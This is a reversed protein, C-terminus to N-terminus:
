RPIADRSMKAAILASSGIPNRRHKLGLALATAVVGFGFLTLSSPEPVPVVGLGWPSFSTIGGITITHNVQDVVGSMAVWAGDEFHYIALKSEDTAPSLLAPDYSFSVTAGAGDSFAGTFDLSWFQFTDGPVVFDIAELADIGSGIVDSLSTAAYSATFSGPQELGPLDVVLTNNSGTLLAISQPQSDHVQYNESIQSGDGDYLYSLSLHGGGSFGPAPDPFVTFVSPIFQSDLSGITLKGEITGLGTFEDLIASDSKSYLLVARLDLDFVRTEGAGFLGGVIAPTATSVGFANKFVISPAGRVPFNGFISNLAENRVNVQGYIDVAMGVRVSQLTGLSANFRPFNYTYVSGGSAVEFTTTLTGAFLPAPLLVTVIAATLTRLGSRGAAVRLAAFRAALSSPMLPSELSTSKTIRLTLSVSRGRFRALPGPVRANRQLAHRGSRSVAARSRDGCYRGGKRGLRSFRALPVLITKRGAM